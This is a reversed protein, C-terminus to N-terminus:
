KGNLDIIIKGDVYEFFNNRKMNKVSRNDRMPYLTGAKLSFTNNSRRALEEIMEYGYMDKTELWFIM